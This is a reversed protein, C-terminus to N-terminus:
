AAIARRAERQSIIGGYLPSALRMAVFDLSRAALRRDLHRLTQYEVRHALLEETLRFAADTLYREWWKAPGGVQAQRQAHTAEHAKLQPPIGPAGNVYVTDGYTFIVGERRAAPFVACIEDFNPPKGRVINM